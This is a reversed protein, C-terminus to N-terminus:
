VPITKRKLYSLQVRNQVSVKGKLNNRKKYLRRTQKPIPIFSQTWTPEIQNLNM